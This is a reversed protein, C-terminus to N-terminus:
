RTQNENALKPVVSLQIHEGAGNNFSILNKKGLEVLKISEALLSGDFYVRSRLKFVPRPGYDTFTNTFSTHIKLSYGDKLSVKKEENEFMLYSKQLESQLFLKDALGRQHKFKVEVQVASFSTSIFSLALFYILM